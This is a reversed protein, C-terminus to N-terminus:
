RNRQCNGIMYMTPATGLFVDYNFKNHTGDKVRNFEIIYLDRLM